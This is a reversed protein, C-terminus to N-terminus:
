VPTGSDCSLGALYAAELSWAHILDIGHETLYGRLAPGSLFHMGLRVPLRGIKRAGLCAFLRQRGSLAVICQSWDEAPLGAILPHLALRLEEPDGGDILHLIRPM